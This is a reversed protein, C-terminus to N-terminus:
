DDVYYTIYCYYTSNPNHSKITYGEGYKGKYPVPEEEGGNKVSVYGRSLATHHKKYEKNNIIM